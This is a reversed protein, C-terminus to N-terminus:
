PTAARHREVTALVASESEFIKPVHLTEGANRGLLLGGSLEALYASFFQLNGTYVLVAVSRLRWHDSGSEPEFRIYV